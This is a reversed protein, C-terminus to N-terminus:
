RVYEIDELNIKPDIESSATLILTESARTIAVYMHTYYREEEDESQGVRKEYREKTINPLIVTDYELGKVRWISEVSINNYLKKLLNKESNEFCVVCYSLNKRELEKAKSVIYEYEEQRSNFMYLVPKKGIKNSNTSNDETLYNSALKQIQKTNRYVVNLKERKFSRKDLGLANWSIRKGFVAQNEDGVWEYRGNEKLIVDLGLIMDPTLDQYEDVLICDYLPAIKEKHLKLYNGVNDYEYDIGAEKLYYKFREYVTYMFEKQSEIIRFKKRGIRTSNLYEDLSNIGFSQLWQIEEIINQLVTEIIEGKYIGKCEEYSKKIIEEKNTNLWKWNQSKKEVQYAVKSLISHITFVDLNSLNHRNVEKAIKNVLAANFATLLFNKEPFKQALYIARYLAVISKGTGAFGMIRIDNDEPLYLVKTQSLDLKFSLEENEKIHEILKRIM